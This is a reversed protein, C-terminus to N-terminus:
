FQSIIKSKWELSPNSEAEIINVGKIKVRTPDHITVNILTSQKVRSGRVGGLEGVKYKRVLESVKKNRVLKSVKEM